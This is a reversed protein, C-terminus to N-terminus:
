APDFEGSLVLYSTGHEDSMEVAIFGFYRAIEGRMKQADWDAEAIDDALFASLM